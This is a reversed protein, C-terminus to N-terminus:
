VRSLEFVRKEVSFLFVYVHTRIYCRGCIYARDYRTQLPNGQKIMNWVSMSHM